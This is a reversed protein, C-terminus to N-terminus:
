RGCSLVLYIVTKSISFGKKRDVRRCGRLLREKFIANALQSIVVGLVVIAIAIASAYDM